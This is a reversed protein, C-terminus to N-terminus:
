TYQGSVIRFMFPQEMLQRVRRGRIEAPAFRWRILVDRVAQAFRRDVSPPVEITTSDIRGTTDVVFYVSFTAEVERRLMDIPYAPKPNAGDSEARKDVNAAIFAVSDVGREASVELEGPAKSASRITGPIDGWLSDALRPPGPESPPPPLVLGAAASLDFSALLPLMPSRSVVRAHRHRPAARDRRSMGASVDIRLITEKMTRPVTAIRAPRDPALVAALLVAHLVASLVVPRAGHPQTGPVSIFPHVM